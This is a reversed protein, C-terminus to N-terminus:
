QAPEGFQESHRRRETDVAATHLALALEHLTSGNISRPMCSVLGGGLHVALAQEVRTTMYGPVPHGTQGATETLGRIGAFYRRLARALQQALQDCEGAADVLETSAAAVRAIRAVSEVRAAEHAEARRKAEEVAELEARIEEAALKRAILGQRENVLVDFDKSDPSASAEGLKRLKQRAAELSADLGRVIAAWASSTAPTPAEATKAM